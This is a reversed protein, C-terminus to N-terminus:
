RTLALMQDGAARQVVHAFLEVALAVWAWLGRNARRKGSNKWRGAHPNQRWAARTEKGASPTATTSILRNPHSNKVELPSFSTDQVM